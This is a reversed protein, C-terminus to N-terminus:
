LILLQRAAEFGLIFSQLDGSNVNPYKRKFDQLAELGKNSSLTSLFENCQRYKEVEQLKIAKDREVILEIISLNKM